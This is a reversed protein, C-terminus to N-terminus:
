VLLEVCTSEQDSNFRTTNFELINLLSALRERTRAFTSKNTARYRGGTKLVNCKEVMTRTPHAYLRGSDGFDFYVIRERMALSIVQKPDDLNTGNEDPVFGPGTFFFQAEAGQMLSASLLLIAISRILQRM